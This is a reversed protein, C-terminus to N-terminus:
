LLGEDKMRRFLSENNHHALWDRCANAIEFQAELIKRTIRGRRHERGYVDPHVFNRIKRVFEVHPGFKNEPLWGAAMAVTLLEDLTWKILPKSGGGKFKPAKGTCDAEESYCDIMTILLAELSSGIM